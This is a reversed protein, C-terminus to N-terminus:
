INIKNGQLWYLVFDIEEMCVLREFVLHNSEKFDRYDTVSDTTKYQKYNNYNLSAPILQDLSGSIFLLPAHPKKFNIKAANKFADGIVLKSEPIAYKYYLEKQQNFSMGNAIAYKWKILPVM